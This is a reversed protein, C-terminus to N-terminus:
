ACASWRENSESEPIASPVGIYAGLAIEFHSARFPYRFTAPKDAPSRRCSSPTETLVAAAVCLPWLYPTSRHRPAAFIYRNSVLSVDHKKAPSVANVASVLWM